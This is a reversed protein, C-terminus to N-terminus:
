GGESVGVVHAHDHEKVPVGVGTGLWGVQDREDVRKGSDRSMRVYM